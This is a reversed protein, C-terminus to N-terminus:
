EKAGNERIKGLKEPQSSESADSRDPKVQLTNMAARFIAEYNAESLDPPLVFAIPSFSPTPSRVGGSQYPNYRDNPIGALLCLRRFTKIARIRSTESFATRPPVFWQQIASGPVAADTPVEALLEAYCEQVAARLTAQREVQYQRWRSTPTGQTDWFGLLRFIDILEGDNYGTFGTSRLYSSDVKPPPATHEVHALFKQITPMSHSTPINM